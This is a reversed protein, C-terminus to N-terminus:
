PRTASRLPRHNRAVSLSSVPPSLMVAVIRGSAMICLIEQIKTSFKTTMLFLISDQASNNLFFTAIRHRFQFTLLSVVFCDSLRSCSAICSEPPQQLARLTGPCFSRVRVLEPQYTWEKRLPTCIQGVEMTRTETHVGINAFKRGQGGFSWSNRGQYPAMDVQLNAGARRFLLSYEAYRHQLREFVPGMWLCRKSDLITTDDAEGTKSRATRAQPVLLIM